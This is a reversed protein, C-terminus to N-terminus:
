IVMNFTSALFGDHFFSYTLFTWPKAIFNSPETSLAIWTPFDFSGVNFQYFFLLALFLAINWYILRHSVELKYQSKLDDLINM